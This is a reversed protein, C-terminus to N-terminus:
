PGWINGGGFYSLELQQQSIRVPQLPPSHIVWGTMDEDTHRTMSLLTWGRILSILLIGSYSISNGSTKWTAFAQLFPRSRASNHFYIGVAACIDDPFERELESERWIQVCVWVETYLGRYFSCLLMHLGELFCLGWCPIDECSVREYSNWWLHCVLSVSFNLLVSVLDRDKRGRAREREWQPESLAM